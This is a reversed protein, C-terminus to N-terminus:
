LFLISKRGEFVSSGAISICCPRWCLRTQDNTRDSEHEDGTYVLHWAKALSGTLQLKM